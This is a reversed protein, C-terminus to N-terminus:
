YLYLWWKKKAFLVLCFKKLAILMLSVFFLIFYLVFIVSPYKSVFFSTINVKWLLLHETFSVNKSMECFECSFMNALAEKKIFSCAEAQFQTLFSARACTNEQSNKRFKKLVGKKCFMEPRSSRYKSRM